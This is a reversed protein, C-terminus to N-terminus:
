SRNVLSCHGEFSRFILTIRVNFNSDNSFKDVNRIKTPRDPLSMTSDIALSPLSTSIELKDAITAKDSLAECGTEFATDEMAFAEVLLRGAVGM